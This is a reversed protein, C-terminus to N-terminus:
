HEPRASTREGVLEYLHEPRGTSGYRLDLRAQGRQELYELYRRATGRSVGTSDAVEQATQPTHQRVLYRLILDLTPRNLGKPMDGPPPAMLQFLRDVDVQAVVDRRAREERFRRYTELTQAFRAFDFPKVIYHLVGGQMAQQLSPMDKAATVMIVDVDAGDRRLQQLVALGSQDPLYIDLIVLDPRQREIAALAEKASHAIGVVQFGSVRATFDAHLEAVMFDDDVVLARIM